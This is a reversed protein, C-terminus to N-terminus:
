ETIVVAGCDGVAAAIEHHLKPLKPDNAVLAGQGSGPVASM